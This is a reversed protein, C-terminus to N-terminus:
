VPSCVISTTVPALLEYVPALVFVVSVIVSVGFLIVFVLVVDNFVLVMVVLCSTFMCASLVMASVPSVFVIVTCNFSAFLLFMCFPVTVNVLLPLVSAFALTFFPCASRFWLYVVGPVYVSVAVYVSLVPVYVVVLVVNLICIICGGVVLVMIVAFLVLVVTPSGRM